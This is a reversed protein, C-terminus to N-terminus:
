LLNEQMDKLLRSQVEEDFDGSLFVNLYKSNLESWSATEKAALIPYFWVQNDRAAKHDGLADGIMITKEPDYGSVMLKKICESKTGDDQAFFYDVLDYLGSIKWEEEIAKKNASSVVAIHAKSKMLEMTEKVGQFPIALPLQSIIENVRDSWALAKEMIELGSKEYEKKLSEPSLADTTDVWRELKRLQDEEVNLLDMSLIKVLGQFRNIGRTVTYLNLDNWTKLVAERREPPVAWIEILAPGFAMEHKVTMSDIACGDSDICVLYQNNKMRNM